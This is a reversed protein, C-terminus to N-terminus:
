LRIANENSHITEKTHLRSLNLVAITTNNKLFESLTAAGTDGM